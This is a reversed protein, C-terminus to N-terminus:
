FRRAFLRIQPSFFNKEFFELGTKVFGSPATDQSADRLRAPKEEPSGPELLFFRDPMQM